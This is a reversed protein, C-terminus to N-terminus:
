KKKQEFYQPIFSIFNRTTPAHYHKRAWVVAATTMLSRDAFRICALGERQAIAEASEPIVALGLGAKAWAILSNSDDSLCFFQAQIGNKQAAQEMLEKYRRHCLLPLGQLRSVPLEYDGHLQPFVAADYVLALREPPLKYSDFSAEDVPLHVIAIEIIGKELLEIVRLTEGILLRYTIKPYDEKFAAILQPLVMLGMSTVVGLSLIGEQGLENSSLECMTRDTLNLIEEARHLLLHGTETLHLRRGSRDFLEVGLEQELQKIQRSLPPQAIHLAKAAETVNGLRAVTVFYRMQQLNM